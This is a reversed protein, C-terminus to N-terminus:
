RHPLLPQVKSQLLAVLEPQMFEYEDRIDLSAIRKDRLCWAFQATLKRRHSGEMVLIVDAWEILEPTVPEEADPSLGASM